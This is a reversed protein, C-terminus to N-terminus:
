KSNYKDNVRKLEKKYYSDCDAKSFSSYYSWAWLDGCGTGFGSDITESEGVIIDIEYPSESIIYRNITKENRKGVTEVIRNVQYEIPNNVGNRDSKVVWIKPLNLEKIRKNDLYEQVKSM